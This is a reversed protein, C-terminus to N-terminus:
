ASRVRLFFFMLKVLETLKDCPVTSSHEVTLASICSNMYWDEVCLASILVMSKCLLVKM